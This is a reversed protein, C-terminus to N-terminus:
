KSIILNHNNINIENINNNRKEMLDFIVISLAAVLYWYFIYMCHSALGIFLRVMMSIQLGLSLKLIFNDSEIEQRLIKVPNNLNYFINKIFLFWAVTGLIGLDGILEGYLSHAPWTYNFYFGRALQYCGPGVGLINGFRVMEIGHVLGIIPSDRADAMGIRSVTSSFGVSFLLLSIIVLGGYISYKMRQESYYILLLIFFIFGVVGIRAKGLILTSIFIFLPIGSLTKIVKNNVTFILFFAIPIVQNMNNALARHGELLGVEAKVRSGFYEVWERGTIYYYVPEYAMFTYLILFLWIFLKLDQINKISCIIMIYLLINGMFAYLTYDWSYKKDWAVLFSILITCLFVLFYKNYKMKLRQFVGKGVITRLTGVVVIILEYRYDVLVPYYYPLKFFFCTLYSLPMLVPKIFGFIFLAISLGLAVKHVTDFDLM